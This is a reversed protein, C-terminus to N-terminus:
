RSARSPGKWGSGMPGLDAFARANPMPNMNGATRFNACAAREPLVDEDRVIHFNAVVHLDLVVNRDVVRNRELVVHETSRRHNERVDEIGAASNAPLVFVTSRQNASPSRDPGVGRDNAAMRDTFVREDACARDDRAIDRRESQHHTGRSAANAPHAPAALPQRLRGARAFAIRAATAIRDRGVAAARELM